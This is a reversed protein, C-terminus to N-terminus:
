LQISDLVEGNLAHLTFRNNEIMGYSACSGGKPLSCSGPNLITIGNEKKLVPVHIHGYIFADGQKLTPMKEESYIHGHSAFLKFGHMLIVNYDSTIPFNLVMQDVEADCNGRVAIIKDKYENLMEVVKKPEHGEPLPNRPGHYLIDGLILLFDCKAEDFRKLIEACASASGHIDSVALIKM